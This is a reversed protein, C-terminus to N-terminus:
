KRNSFEWDVRYILSSGPVKRSESSVIEAGVESGTFSSVHDPFLQSIPQSVLRFILLYLTLKVSM